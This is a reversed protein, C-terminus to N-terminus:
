SPMNLSIRFLMCIPSPSAGYNPHTLFPPLLSFPRDQNKIQWRCLFQAAKAISKNSKSKPFCQSAHHRVTKHLCCLLLPVFFGVWKSHSKSQPTEESTAASSPNSGLCYSDSDYTSGNCLEAVTDLSGRLAAQEKTVRWIAPPNDAM